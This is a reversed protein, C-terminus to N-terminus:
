PTDVSKMYNYVKLVDEATANSKILNAKRSIFAVNGRVYGKNPDIRDLHPSSDLSRDGRPTLSFGFVPCSETWISELYDADLDYPIDSRRCQSAKNHHTTMFFSKERYRLQASYVCRKCASTLKDTARKETYFDTFPKVEGCKSCKKM